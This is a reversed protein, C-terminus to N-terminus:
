INKSSMFLLLLLLVPEAGGRGPWAGGPGGRGRSPRPDGGAGVGGTMEQQATRLQAVMSAAGMQFIAHQAADAAYKAQAAQLETTLAQALRAPLV